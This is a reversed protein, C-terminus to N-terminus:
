SRSSTPSRAAGRLHRHPRLLRDPRVPQLRRRARVRDQRADGGALEYFALEDATPKYPAVCHPASRASSGSVSSASCRRRSSSRSSGWTWSATSRAADRRDRAAVVHRLPRDARGAGRHARHRRRPDRRRPDRRPGPAPDVAARERVHRRRAPQDPDPQDDPLRVRGSGRDDHHQDRRPRDGRADRVADHDQGLRDPGACIVMGYPSRILREYERTPRTRCASSRSRRAARAHPRAAADRVERRLRDGDDVRARRPRSRRGDTEIQGDQPRRREVINMDAM